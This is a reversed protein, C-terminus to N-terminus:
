NIILNNSNLIFKLYRLSKWKKEADFYDIGTLFVPELHCYWILFLGRKLAEIDIKSLVSYENFIKRYADCIGLEAIKAEKNEIAGKLSIVISYLEMEQSALEDMKM